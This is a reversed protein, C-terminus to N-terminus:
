MHRVKRFVESRFNPDLALAMATAIVLLVMFQALKHMLWTIPTYMFKIIINTARDLGCVIEWCVVMAAMGFTLAATSVLVLEFATLAELFNFMAQM